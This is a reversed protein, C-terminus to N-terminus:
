LASPGIICNKSTRKGQYLREDALRYCNGFGSCEEPAAVAGMTMHLGLNSLPSHHALKELRDILSSDWRSDPFVLVFEDGGLRALLDGEPLSESIYRTMQRLAADGRQHGHADNYAKFNDLDAIVFVARSTNPFELLREMRKELGHRNLAGTLSDHESLHALHHRQRVVRLTMGLTHLIAPIVHEAFDDFANCYLNAAALPEDDAGIVYMLGRGGETEEEVYPPLARMGIPTWLLLQETSLLHKARSGLWNPMDRGLQDAYPEMIGFVDDVHWQGNRYVTYTGGSIRELSVLIRRFAPWITNADSTFVSAEALERAARLMRNEDELTALLSQRVIMAAVIPAIVTIARLASQSMEGTSRDALYIVGVVHGAHILPVAIAMEIQLEDIVALSSSGLYHINWDDDTLLAISIKKKYCQAVLSDVPDLSFALDNEGYTGYGKLGLSRIENRVPNAQFLGVIRWPLLRALVSGMARLSQAQQLAQIWEMVRDHWLAELAATDKRSTNM